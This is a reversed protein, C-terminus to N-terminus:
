VGHGLGHTMWGLLFQREVVNQLGFYCTPPVLNLLQVKADLVANKAGLRGLESTEVMGLPSM